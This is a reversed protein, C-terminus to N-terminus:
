ASVCSGLRAYHRQGNRYSASRQISLLLERVFSTPLYLAQLPYGSLQEDPDLGLVPAVNQWTLDPLCPLIQRLEEVVSPHVVIASCVQTWLLLLNDQPANKGFVTRYAKRLTEIADDDVQMSSSAMIAVTFFWDPESM